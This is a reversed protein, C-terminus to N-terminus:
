GNVEQFAVLTEIAVAAMTHDKPSKYNGIDAYWKLADVLGKVSSAPILDYEPARTLHNYYGCIVGLRNVDKPYLIEDEIKPHVYAMGFKHTKPDFVDSHEKNM